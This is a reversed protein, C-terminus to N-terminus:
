EKVYFVRIPLTQFAVLYDSELPSFELDEVLEYNDPDPGDFIWNVQDRCDPNGLTNQEGFLVSAGFRVTFLGARQPVLLIEVVQEEGVRGSEFLTGTVVQLEEGIRILRQVAEEANIVRFGSLTTDETIEETVLTIPIPYDSLDIVEGDIKNESLIPSSVKVMLTDGVQLTDAGPSVEAFLELEFDEFCNDFLRFCGTGAVLLVVLWFSISQKMKYKKLHFIVKRDSRSGSGPRACLTKLIM